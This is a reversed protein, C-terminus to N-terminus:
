AKWNLRALGGRPELNKTGIGIPEIPPTVYWSSSTPMSMPTKWVSNKEGLIEEQLPTNPFYSQSQFFTVDKSVFYKNKVHVFVSKAKKHLLTKYLFM